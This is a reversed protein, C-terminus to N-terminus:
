SRLADVFQALVTGVSEFEDLFAWNDFDLSVDGNAIPSSSRQPMGQFVDLDTTPPPLRSRANIATQSELLLRM